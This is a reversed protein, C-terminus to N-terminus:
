QQAAQAAQAQAQLEAQLTELTRGEAVGLEKRAIPTLDVSQAPDLYHVSGKDFVYIYGAKTALENIKDQAKKYIPAFLQEQQEALEAQVNQQFEQIRRQIESLEDEKAKRTAQTYSSVGQQYKSYKSNFEEVMTQYTEQANKQAESLTARAQDAEPMLQVLEQFNVHAFKQAFATMSFLSVAAILLIKKM